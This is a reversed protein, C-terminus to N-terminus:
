KEMNIRVLKTYIKQPLFRKFDPLYKLKGVRYRLKDRNDSAAKYITEAVKEADSGNEGHRILIDIVKNSYENYEKTNEDSMVTKSRGYFDTKIVGPEIIKVKIGFARLEYQLAESFGEVGWKSAHYLSQIPMAMLGAISSINIIIGSKKQRFHPLFERTILMLGKLNTDLQQSIQNDSAAEFPGITYFGANNVIVDVEGFTLISEKVVSKIDESNTVDCKFLKINEFNGFETEIKPNRMTAAVQWGKKLFYKVTERGIGSSAGTIFVTKM